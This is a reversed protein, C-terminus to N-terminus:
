QGGGSERGSGPPRPVEVVTQGDPQRLILRPLPDASQTRFVASGSRLQVTSLPIASSGAADEVHLTGGTASRVPASGPDWRVLIGDPAKEMRLDVPPGQWWEALATLRDRSLFAAMCLALVVASVAANRRTNRARRPRRAAPPAVMRPLPAPVFVAPEPAMEPAVALEPLRQPQVAIERPLLQIEPYVSETRVSGDVERFFFVARMAGVSAPQLVLVLQWPYPFYRSWLDVDEESLRPEGRTRSRYWGVPHM